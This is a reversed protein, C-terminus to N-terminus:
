QATRLPPGLLVRKVAALPHPAPQHRQSTSTMPASGVENGGGCAYPPWRKSVASVESSVRRCRATTAWQSGRGHPGNSALHPAAFGACRDARATCLLRLLRPHPVM